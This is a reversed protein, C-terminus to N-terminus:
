TKTQLDSIFNKADTLGFGYIERALIVADIMNGSEVLDLLRLEQEDQKLDRIPPPESGGRHYLSYYPKLLEEVTVLNPTLRTAKTKWHIKIIGGALVEIASGKASSRVGKVFTPGYKLRENKLCDSVLSLERGYLSIELFSYTEIQDDTQRYSQSKNQLVRFKQGRLHLKRIEKKPIFVVVKDSLPLRFDMYSRINVYLGQPTALLTWNSSKLAAICSSMFLLGVILCVLAVSGIVLSAFSSLLVGFLSSTDFGLGQQYAFMSFLPLWILSMFSAIGHGWPSMRAILIADDFPVDSVSILKLAKYRSM